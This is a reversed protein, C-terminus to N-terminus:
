AVNERKQIAPGFLRYWRMYHMACLGHILKRERRPCDPLRCKRPQGRRDLARPRERGTRRWYSRCRVCRVAGADTPRECVRCVRIM